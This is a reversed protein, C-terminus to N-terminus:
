FRSDIGKPYDGSRFNYQYDPNEKMINASEPYNEVFWTMFATVDIKESLLKERKKQWVKKIAPTKLLEVAKRISLEQDNMSETFNYVLGFEKEEEDTYGRGKNDLYIAPTGLVACESAMTASEGYLLTAYFLANHMMEPPINIQYQKLDNPMEKESSIFVKAYKSFEKVAKKKMELHLGSHGIDHVAKWSVFRLIVYKTQKPIGLFNWISPSPSFYNPHLSCLEMYGNFRIQKKNLNKLYCSPTLITKTFPIYMFQGFTAHETDDFAIHPKGLLFSVHAAYPSSFSLFIDPKFKISRRLILTDTKLMYIFKGLINKSGKGKSFYQEGTYNLLDLAVEKDRAAILFKHGKKKMIKIFNKFYHVHAPHGIDILIKM